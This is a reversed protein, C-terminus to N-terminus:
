MPNSQVTKIVRHTVVPGFFGFTLDAFAGLNSHVLFSVDVDLANGLTVDVDLVRCIFIADAIIDEFQRLSGEFEAFAVQYSM